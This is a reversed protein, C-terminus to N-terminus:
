KLSLMGFLLLGVGLFGEPGLREGLVVVGIAVALLPATGRAIPYVVSLDGRRYGAALFVFYAAELAGSITAVLVAEPPIPAAGTAFWGITAAPVIILAATSM